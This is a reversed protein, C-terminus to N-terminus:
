SAVGDTEAVSSDKTSFSFGSFFRTAVSPSRHNSLPSEKM